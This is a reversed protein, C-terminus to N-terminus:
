NLVLATSSCAIGGYKRTKWATAGDTQPNKLGEDGVGDTQEMSM